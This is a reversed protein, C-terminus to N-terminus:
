HSTPTFSSFVLQGFLTILLINLVTDWIEETFKNVADISVMVSVTVCLINGQKSWIKCLHRDQREFQSTLETTNRHKLFYQTGHTEETNFKITCETVEDTSLRFVFETSKSLMGEIMDKRTLYTISNRLWVCM